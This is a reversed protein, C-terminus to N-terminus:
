KWNELMTNVFEPEYLTLNKRDIQAFSDKTEDGGDWYILPINYSSTLKSIFTIWKLRENLPISRFAGTEGLVVPIKKSIYVENLSAFTNKLENEDKETFNMKLNELDPGLVYDHVTLILRDRASDEPMKFYQSLPTKTSTCLGPILVYRQSNNGKSSRITNLILQNYENLIKYDAICEPCNTNDCWSYKLGPQWQHEHKANRPENMTEFILHEDYSNNFAATIQKWIAKLFAKSEAIDTQNDNVIYGNNVSHHENLIVYYGADIAWDVIQKVRQMWEPDITYNKDVIHNFWTVPLRISTYGLTKGYDIIEKTTYVGGSWATQSSLAYETPDEMWGPWAELSNALNWGVKLKKTFDISNTGPSFRGSTKSDIIPIYPDKESVFEINLVKLKTDAEPNQIYIQQIQSKKSADLELYALTSYQSCFRYKFYGQEDDGPYGAGFRFDKNADSYQIKLYKYESADFEGLWINAWGKWAAELEIMGTEANLCKIKSVDLKHRLPQEQINQNCALFSFTVFILLIIKRFSLHAESMM